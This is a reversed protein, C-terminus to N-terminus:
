LTKAIAKKAKKEKDLMDWQPKMRMLALLDQLALLRQYYESDLNKSLYDGHYTFLHILTNEGNEVGITDETTARWSERTIDFLRARGYHELLQEWSLTWDVLNDSTYLHELFTKTLNATPLPYKAAQLGSHLHVPYYAPFDGDEEIWYGLGTPDFTGGPVSRVLLAFGAKEITLIDEPKMQEISDAKQPDAAKTTIITPVYEFDM